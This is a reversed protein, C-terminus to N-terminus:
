GLGMPCMYNPCWYLIAEGMKFQIGCKPCTSYEETKQPFNKEWDDPWNPIPNIPGLEGWPVRRNLEDELEKIRKELNDLRESDSNNM